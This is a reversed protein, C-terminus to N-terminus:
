RVRANREMVLQAPHWPAKGREWIERLHKLDRLTDMCQWFGEHFHASLRGEAALRELPDREFPMSDDSVYNAVEHELVFFGGNIWGDGLQPKEDFRIIRNGDFEIRGFRSPPRVASLTALGGSAEHCALLAELDINSVGDGYTAFFRREGLFRACKRIRGGTMTDSGTELLHVVWDDGPHNGLPEVEGTVFNITQSGARHLYNRFYEKIYDGMYGLAVVFERCGYARYHRMIHMIIPIDGVEVMPKPKSQTEESLRTGLGGALIVVPLSAVNRSM